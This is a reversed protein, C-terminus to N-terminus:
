PTLEARVVEMAAAPFPIGARVETLGLKGTASGKLTPVTKLDLGASFFGERGTLLLAGPAAEALEKSVAIESVLVLDLANAPPRDIRVLAIENVAEVVIHNM